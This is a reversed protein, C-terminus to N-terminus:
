RVIHPDKESDSTAASLRKLNAVERMVFHPIGTELDERVYVKKVAVVEGNRERDRARFVSGYAGHGLEGLIEFRERIDMTCSSEDQLKEQAELERWLCERKRKQARTVVMSTM